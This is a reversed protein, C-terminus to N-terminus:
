LKGTLWGKYSGFEAKGTLGASNVRWISTTLKFFWIKTTTTKKRGSINLVVRPLGPSLFMLHKWRWKYIHQAISPNRLSKWGKPKGEQRSHAPFQPTRQDRGPEFLINETSGLKNAQSFTQQLSYKISPFNSPNQKLESVIRDNLYSCLERRASRIVQVERTGRSLRKIVRQFPPRPSKYKIVLWSCLAKSRLFPLFPPPPSSPLFPVPSSLTGGANRHSASICILPSVDDLAEARHFFNRSFCRKDAPFACLKRYSNTNLWRQDLSMNRHWQRMDGLHSCNKRSLILIFLASPRSFGKGGETFMGARGGEGGWCLRKDSGM